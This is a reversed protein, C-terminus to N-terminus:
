KIRFYVVQGEHIDLEKMLKVSMGIGYGAVSPGVNIPGSVLDPTITSNSIPPVTTKKNNNPNLFETTGSAIKDASINENIIFKTSYFRHSDTLSKVDSWLLQNKNTDKNTTVNKNSLRTIVSMSIDDSIKYVGESSGMRAVVARFWIDNPTKGKYYVKQIYKENGYGNYPVGFETVGAEPVMDEGEIKTKGKDIEYNGYPTSITETTSTVSTSEKVLSVAKALIKDFLPRYSSMFSDEPDPLSARPIRSGKFNTVINNNRINHSVETIWYSGKFMPVNKLYFFMTPQIMVNGMCTVECQYSAQRYYEFLGIDVNYTGSGSESRALNELVVFSESTNKITSQDLQVGKFISQNQDGFSVEFAVVKNSKSLEDSNFVQPLTIILPNNNVNSLNFSDDNFKYQKNGALDLHKSSPGTFQIVIKPSSEQYDVELFTGFLNQAVTESPMIKSNSNVNNGYFNVYAPLARMDFGTGQILMSIASYLNSKDNKPDLISIFRDLNLYAKNGIDKNAKDLFLFEEMLLRQGISNGATWKDNFSKFTNYLEIKINRNNYGDVFNIPKYNKESELSKFRPILTSLFLNMRNNAGGVINSTTARNFISENLYSKFDFAVPTYLPNQNLKSKFWGAYILIIPRLSLINTQSLEIDFLEFFDLYYGDIDEGVYLNIYDMNGIQSVNYKEFQLKSDIFGEFIYSDIEKPNGLTLKILNNDDFFDSSLNEFKLEQRKRLNSILEEITLSSDSTEKKVSVLNKLTLQFNDYKVNSFPKYPIEENIIETSYQLFLDEFKELIQPSFTAILDIVKRYNTDLSYMKDLSRDSINLNSSYETPDNFTKGSFDSNLYEDEWIVRYHIQNGRAFTDNNLTVDDPQGVVISSTKKRNVYLNDGDSPLLTYRVDTPDFKSNDVFSTWYKLNNKTRLRTKITGNAANTQFSTNGSLVEYHTYGNVVQHYIADYYPHMGVDVGGSYTVTGSPTTFGTFNSETRGSNFFLNGDINTTQFSTNLCGDLIDVGDTIYKKYRHYISGWKIMLHYPVFHTSGIERFISSLRIKTGDSNFKVMDGLDYFPLSNLLLYSAGKYKGITNTKNFDSYLQKHFYPTNLINTYNEDVKLKQGFLNVQYDDKVYWRYNIPSGIFGEKQNIDLIGKFKFEDDTFQTKNIYSLYTGSNFPYIDKRYPEPTYNLLNNKLKTYLSLDISKKDVDTRYQSVSFPVEIDDQIYSTTPIKDVFYPYKENPSLKEMLTTLDDITNINTKLIDVLDYEENIVEQITKFEIDSLERITDPTFSDILTIQKIREYMEYLFSVLTKGVYPTISSITFLTSVENIKSKDLDSEFIYDIKNVGGEKETNPDSRNTGVSIFEEVFEVEPWLMRDNSQLTNILEPEGPYAVVKQKTGPVDKKIEPWPYISEGVTETDFNKINKKRANASNFANNHVDKMLRVYTEANALLVAFLNRVTPDFGIGGRNKDKVVENMRKEVESEIKNKQEIFTKKIERIDSLLQEIPVYYQKDIIKYYARIGTLSKSLLASNINVGKEKRLSNFVNIEATLEKTSNVIINELTGATLGIIKVPDSKDTASLGFYRVNVTEDTALTNPVDRYNTTSLYTKGWAIVAREFKDIATDYNKLSNLVRKDIVNDFIEKELLKDLSQAIVGIERLTKVPFDQPILKKQKMEEYISKLVQYGKSSRSIVKERMGTRENFRSDKESEKAFMYPANLMAKLPIDNMYAYTSGVFTTAVEFNGTSDNFKTNFKVLHLRYKIAKGYYGKVTLYFIPWPVHFFAKYPSNEASEFLTKGRVDIFNINVQPIFNAGKVSITVSDIGFSQGSSDGSEFDDLVKTTATNPKPPNVFSDTWDTTFDKEASQSNLFNFSGKAISVLNEKGPQKQSSALISRPIIDAELNLYMVLKEQQVNRQQAEGGVLVSNPDVYILNNQDVKVLIKETNSLDNNAM